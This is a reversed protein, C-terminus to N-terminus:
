QARQTRSLDPAWGDEVLAVFIAAATLDATTGPNRSNHADRLDGDFEVLAARGAVTRTGGAERVAAARDSIAAAAAAGVKRTVLTDPQEALIALFSEVTADAWGLGATRAGRLAPLGVGFTLGFDGAWEAAVADHSAALQMAQRLTVTPAAALDQAAVHGLGGARSERIAQYAAIADAVSSEELVSCLAERLASKSLTAVHRPPSTAARRAAEGLPALLLVMGLNTNAGTWSRSARVAALIREGVPGGAADGLIPGIALASVLFDEYSMDRFPRGPSVNGPKPASAELLCALTILESLRETM